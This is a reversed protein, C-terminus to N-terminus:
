LLLRCVLHRLSQLESTHEKRDTSSSPTPRGSVNCFFRPSPVRMMAWRAVMIPPVNEMSGFGVPPVQTSHESGEGASFRCGGAASRFLTTYPFLLSGSLPPLTQLF